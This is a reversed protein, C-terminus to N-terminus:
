KTVSFLYRTPPLARRLIRSSLRTEDPDRSLEYYLPVCRQIRFGTGELMSVMKKRSYAASHPRHWFGRHYINSIDLVATGGAKLIEHITDLLRKEHDYGCILTDNCLVVDFVGSKFPHRLYDCRLVMASNVNESLIKKSLYAVSDMSIDCLVSSLARKALSWSFRGSGASIDCFRGMTEPILMHAMHIHKSLKAGYGRPIELGWPSPNDPWRFPEDFLARYRETSREEVWGTARREFKASPLINICTGNLADFTRRCAGCRLIGNDRSFIDGACDPCKLIHQIGSGNIRGGTRM